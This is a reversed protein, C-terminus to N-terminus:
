ATAKQRRVVGLVLVLAIGLLLAGAAAWILLVPADYGTSALGDDTGAANGTSALGDDTGEASGADAPVVTITASGVNGSTVGTATRSYSGSANAPLTFKFTIGGQANATGTLTVTSTAFGAGSVAFTVTEGANFSGDAFDVTQESGPTASGSVTINDAAVYGAATAATPVAFLALAALAVVAFAKKIMTNAGLCNYTLAGVGTSPDYLARM